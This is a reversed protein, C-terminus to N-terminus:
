QLVEGFCFGNCFDTRQKSRVLFGTADKDVLGTVTNVTDGVKSIGSGLNKLFDSNFTDGLSRIANGLSSTQSSLEGISDKMDAFGQKVEDSM